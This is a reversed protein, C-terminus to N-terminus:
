ALDNKEEDNIDKLLRHQPFQIAPDSSEGVAIILRRAEKLLDLRRKLISELRIIEELAKRSLDNGPSMDLGINADERLYEKIKVKEWDNEIECDKYNKITKKKRANM